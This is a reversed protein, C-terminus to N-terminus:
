STAPLLSPPRSTQKWAGTPRPLHQDAAAPIPDLRFTGRDQPGPSPSSRCRCDAAEEEEEEGGVRSGGQQWGAAVGFRAGAMPAPLAVALNTMSNRIGLDAHSTARRTSPSCVVETEGLYALPLSLTMDTLRDTGEGRGDSLGPRRGDRFGSVHAGM